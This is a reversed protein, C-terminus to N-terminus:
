MALPMLLLPARGPGGVGSAPSNSEFTIDYSLDISHNAGCGCADCACTMSLSCLALRGCSVAMQMTQQANTYVTCQNTGFNGSSGYQPLCQYGDIKGNNDFMPYSSQAKCWPDWPEYSEINFTLRDGQWVVGHAAYSFGEIYTPVFPLGLGNGTQPPWLAAPDTPPNPPPGVGMVVDIRDVGDSGTGLTLTVVDSGSMLTYGEFYGQWVGKLAAPITFPQDGAVAPSSADPTSCLGGDPGIGVAVAGGDDQTGILTRTNGCGSIAAFGFTLAAFASIKM